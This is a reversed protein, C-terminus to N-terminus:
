YKGQCYFMACRVLIDGRFGVLTLGFVELTRNSDFFIM